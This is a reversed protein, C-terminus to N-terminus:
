SIVDATFTGSGTTLFYFKLRVTESPGSFQTHNVRWRQKNNPDRVREIYPVVSPLPDNNRDLVKIVLRYCFAGGFKNDDPAFEVNVCAFRTGTSASPATLEVDYVNSSFVRTSRVTKSGMVQFSGKMQQQSSETDRLTQSLVNEPLRDLAGM